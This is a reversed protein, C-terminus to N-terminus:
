TVAPKRRLIVASMLAVFIGVPLIEFLTFLTMVVPNKYSEMSKDFSATKKAIEEATMGSAAWKEKMHQAYKEPFTHAIENTNYYVMWGIVYIASAILAILFGVWLAKGFTIAGGLYKERYQRVGFFVMSLSIIMTTYGLIEGTDMNMEGDPSMWFSKTLHWLLVLLGGSLLGYTLVVKRM